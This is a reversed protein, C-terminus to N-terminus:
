LPYESISNDYCAIFFIADSFDYLMYISIGLVFKPMFIFLTFGLDTQNHDKDAVKWILQM